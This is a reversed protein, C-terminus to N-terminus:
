EAEIRPALLFRLRGKGDAVPVDLQIPLNTGFSVTIVDTSSAAKTMDALYKISYMAKAPERVNLKSLAKDGKGVKLETTGKDGEASVVFGDDNL